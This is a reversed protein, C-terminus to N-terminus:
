ALGLGGWATARLGKRVPPTFGWRKLYKGVTRVSLKPSCEQGALQAVAPRGWLYFGRKLQGPRKDIIARKILREQGAPCGTKGKDVGEAQPAYRLGGAKSLCTM